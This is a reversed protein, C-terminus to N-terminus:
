LETVTETADQVEFDDFYTYRAITTDASGGTDFSLQTPYYDGLRTQFLFLPSKANNTKNFMNILGNDALLLDTLEDISDANDIYRTQRTTIIEFVYDNLTDTIIHRYLKTGGSITGTQWKGGSVILAKGNDSGSVAPLEKPLEDGSDAVLKGEIVRNFFKDTLKAM